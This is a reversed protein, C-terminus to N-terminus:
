AQFPLARVWAKRGERTMLETGAAMHERRVYALAIPGFRPSLVASTTEASAREGAGAAFFATGPAPLPLADLALGALRRRVAGRFTARAIVEQGVYCGKNFHIARESLNAELPITEENMDAGFRPLGAEVRVVELAESGVPALGISRGRELAAAFAASAQATPVFLDVGPTQGLRAGLAFGDGLEEIQNEDLTPVPRGAVLAAAEPARPGVLSLVAFSGTADVVEVDESIVYHALLETVAAARGPETDLLLADPRNLVRADAIMKGKVTLIATYCARGALLNNVDNTVLRHLFAVRDAGGLRVLGRGSRDCLGCAEQMARYERALDGYGLVAPGSAQEEIRAGLSRHLALLEAFANM